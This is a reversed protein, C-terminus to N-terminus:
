IVLAGECRCYYQWYKILGSALVYLCCPFISREIDIVLNKFGWPAVGLAAKAIAREKSENLEVLNNEVYTDRM